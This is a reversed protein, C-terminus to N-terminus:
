RNPLPCSHICYGGMSLQAWGDLWHALLLRSRFVEGHERNRALDLVPGVFADLPPAAMRLSSGLAGFPPNTAHPSVDIDIEMAAEVTSV